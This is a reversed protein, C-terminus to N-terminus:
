NTDFTDVLAVDKARRLLDPLVQKDDDLIKTKTQREVQKIFTLYDKIKDEAETLDQLQNIYDGELEQKVGELEQVKANLGKLVNQVTSSRMTKATTSLLQDIKKKSVEPVLLPDEEEEEAVDEEEERSSLNQRELTQKLATIEDRLEQLEPEEPVYNPAEKLAAIEAILKKNEEIALSADLALMMKNPTLPGPTDAKGIKNSCYYFEKLHVLEQELRENKAKLKEIEVVDSKNRMPSLMEVDTSAFSLEASTDDGYEETINEFDKLKIGLRVAKSKGDVRKIKGVIGMRVLADGVKKPTESGNFHEYLDSFVVYDNEDGTFDIINELRKKL